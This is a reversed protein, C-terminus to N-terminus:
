FTVTYENLAFHAYYTAPEKVVFSYVAGTSVSSGGTAGKTWKIIHSGTNPTAQLNCTAGYPYRGSGIVMGDAGTEDPHKIADIQLEGVSKWKAYLTHDAAILVPKSLDVVQGQANTWSNGDPLFGGPPTPYAPTSGYAQGYTYQQMKRNSGDSFSGGNADFTVTYENAKWQAQLTVSKNKYTLGFAGGDTIRARDAFAVEPTQGSIVWKQFSYGTRVPKAALNYSNTYVINTREAPTGSTAGNGDYKLDYKLWDLHVALYQNKAPMSAWVFEDVPDTVKTYKFHGNEIANLLNAQSYEDYSWMTVDHGEPVLAHYTRTEGDYFPLDSGHPLGAEEIRVTKTDVNGDVWSPVVTLFRLEAGLVNASIVTALVTVLWKKMIEEM